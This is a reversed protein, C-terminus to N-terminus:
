RILWGLGLSVQCASMVVPIVMTICNLSWRQKASTTMRHQLKFSSLRHTSFTITAQWGIDGRARALAFIPDSSPFSPESITKRPLVMNQILDLLIDADFRLGQSVKESSQQRPQSDPWALASPPSCFSDGLEIWSLVSSYCGSMVVPKVIFSWIQVQRLHIKYNLVTKRQSLWPPM